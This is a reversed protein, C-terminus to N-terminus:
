FLDIFQYLAWCLVVIGGGLFWLSRKRLQALTESERQDAIALPRGARGKWIVVANPELQPPSADELRRARQGGTGVSGMMELYGIAVLMPARLPTPMAYVLRKRWEGTRVLRVLREFGV